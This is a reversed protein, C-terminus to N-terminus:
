YRKEIDSIDQHFCEGQEEKLDGCNELFYDLHSQLFHMKVSMCTGIQRFNEMLEDVVNQYQFSRHNGLFNAITSRFSLWAFLEAPNLADDFTTDKILERIQLGDSIGAKIKEIREQQFKQHHFPFGRGERDLVKVFNKMLGLKIHLPPLLIKSPEVLAHSLFNHSGPELGQRSPWKDSMINTM